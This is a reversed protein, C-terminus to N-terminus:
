AEVGRSQGYTETKNEKKPKVCRPLVTSDDTPARSGVCDSLVGMINLNQSM